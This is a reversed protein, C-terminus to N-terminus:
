QSEGTSITPKVERMSMDKNGQLERIDRKRAKKVTYLSIFNKTLYMTIRKMLIIIYFLNVAM